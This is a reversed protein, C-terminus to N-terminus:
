AHALSPEETSSFSILIVAAWLISALVRTCITARSTHTISSAVFLSQSWTMPKRRQSPNQAGIVAVAVSGSFNVRQSICEVSAGGLVYKIRTPIAKQINPMTSRM